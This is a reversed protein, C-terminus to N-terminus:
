RSGDLFWWMKMTLHESGCAALRSGRAVSCDAEALRLRLSSAGPRPDAGHRRPQLRVAGLRRLSPAPLRRRPRSPHPRDSQGVAGGVILAFGVAAVRGGERARSWMVLVVVTIALTVAILGLNGFGRFLSFAIGTNSVRYLSLVPLVDLAEGTPLYAEAAAKAAQDAIVTAVVVAIGLLSLPGDPARAELSLPSGGRPFDRLADRRDGGRPQAFRGQGGDPDQCAGPLGRGAGAFARVARQGHRSPGAGSLRVSAITSRARSIRASWWAPGASRSRSFSRGARGRWRRRRLDLGHHRAGGRDLVPRRDRRRPDRGQAGVADVTRVITGLNGPDRVDELAVWVTAPMPASRTSRRDAAARLRRHVTQPNDRRTIKELVAESVAIVDGGRPMRPPPSARWWRSRRGGAPM